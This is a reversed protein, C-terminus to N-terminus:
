LIREVPRSRRRHRSPAKGPMVGTLLGLRSTRRARQRIRLLLDNNEQVLAQVLPRYEAPLLPTLEKFGIDEDQELIRALHRRRQEREDRTIRLAQTQSDVDAINQLLDPGRHGVVLEQHEDLLALMEGYQRLEERLAEVLNQLLENM